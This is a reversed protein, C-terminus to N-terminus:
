DVSQKLVPLHSSDSMSSILMGSQIPGKFYGQKLKVCQNNLYTQDTIQM